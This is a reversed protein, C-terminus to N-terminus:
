FISKQSKCSFHRLVNGCHAFAMLFLFVHDSVGNSNSPSLGIPSSPFTPPSPALSRRDPTIPQSKRNMWENLFNKNFFFLCVFKSGSSHIRLIEDM